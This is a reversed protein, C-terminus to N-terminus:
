DRLTGSDLPFGCYAAAIPRLPRKSGTRSPAAFRWRRIDFESPSLTSRVWSTPPELRGLEMELPRQVRAAEPKQGRSTPTNRRPDRETELVLAQFRASQPPNGPIRATQPESPGTASRPRGGRSPHHRRRCGRPARPERRFPRSDFMRSSRLGKPSFNARGQLRSSGSPFPAVAATSRM